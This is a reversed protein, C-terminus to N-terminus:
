ATRDHRNVITWYTDSDIEDVSTILRGSMLDAVIAEIDFDGANDGLTLSVQYALDKARDVTDETQTHPGPEPSPRRAM